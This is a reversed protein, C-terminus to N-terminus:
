QMAGPPYRVSPRGAVHSDTQSPVVPPRRSAFGYQSRGELPVYPREPRFLGSGCAATGAIVLVVAFGTVAAAILGAKDLVNLHSPGLVFAWDHEGGILTLRQYPADAIYVAADRAATGAWTLCVGAALRDRRAFWFYVAIGLPVAVQTISGMAATIVAPLMSTVLHGLEHFGLDVLGLLPVRTGRVFPFFALFLCLAIGAVYRWTGAWTRRDSMGGTDFRHGAQSLVFADPRSWITSSREDLHWGDCPRM